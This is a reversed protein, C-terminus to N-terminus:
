AQCLPQIAEPIPITQVKTRLCSVLRIMGIVIQACQQCHFGLAIERTNSLCATQHAKDYAKVFVPFAVAAMVVGLLLTVVSCCIGAIALGQGRLREPAGGIQVVAIIGLIVGLVGGLGLTFLGLIGFVLSAIAFGSTRTHM